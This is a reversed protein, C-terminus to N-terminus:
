RSDEMFKILLNLVIPGAFASTDGIFKLVGLFAYEVLYAKSLSRLLTQGALLSPRVRGSAWRPRLDGPLDFLDEVTRLGRDERNRGEYGRYMLPNVWAFTMKSLINKGEDGPGLSAQEERLLPDLQSPLYKKINKLLTASTLAIDMKLLIWMVLLTYDTTLVFSHLRLVNYVHCTLAVYCAVRSTALATVWKAKPVIPDRCLSVAVFM